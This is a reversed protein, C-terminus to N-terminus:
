ASPASRRARLALFEDIQAETVARARAPDEYYAKYWRVTWDLAQGLSLTPRWALEAKAASCDLKLYRAEHPQPHATAGAQECRARGGWTKALRDAVWAVPQADADDPGFNWPKAYTEPHEYLRHALLLYAGLPELVHQWPRIAFPNRVVAPRAAAFACVLDPVLRDAAWDGGGIVNGARATALATGGERLFSDRYAASVLEACAKSNSYPDHGGLADTERYGWAWERNEYCKDTTVCVVAKVGGVGRVADLVNVTGMVNTAYTGVPDVYSHRVLPQAALHLVIEPRTTEVAERVAAADRVDAIRHTLGAGADAAAFLSPQTPPSLALGTVRAGWKRLWLTLWAGKFGTHGTLLVRRGAWFTADM